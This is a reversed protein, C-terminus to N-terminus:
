SSTRAGPKTVLFWCLVAFWGAAVVAFCWIVAVAAGALIGICAALAYFDRMTIWILVQRLRSPREQMRHKLADFTFKDGASRAQMGLIASGLALLACGAAGAVAAEREGSLFLNIAVGGIFGLNTAADTLSDLMAGRKSTRFTARAIEGDVGDVISALQFLLAGAILGGNGGLVLSAFMVAGILAAALTAHGPRMGPWRLVARSIAQSVPRNITRSVIGDGPKGTAKVIARAQRRLDAVRAPRAQSREVPAVAKPLQLAAGDLWEAEELTDADCFDVRRGPLLRQMEADCCASPAGGGPIAIALSHGAEVENAANYAARAAAPIGAVSFNAAAVDAFLIALPKNAFM